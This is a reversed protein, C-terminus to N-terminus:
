KLWGLHRVIDVSWILMCFMDPYAWLKNSIPKNRKLHWRHIWFQIRFSFALKWFFNVSYCIQSMLGQVNDKSTAAERNSGYMSLFFISSFSIFLMQLPPSTFVVKSNKANRHFCVETLFLWIKWFRKEYEQLNCM